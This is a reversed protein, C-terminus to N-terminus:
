DAPKQYFQGSMQETRVANIFAYEDVRKIARILQKSEASSVVSYVVQRDEYQFSGKGDEKFHFKM